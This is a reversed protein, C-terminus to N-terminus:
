EVLLPVKPVTGGGDGGGSGDKPKRAGPKKPGGGSPSRPQAPEIDFILADDEVKVM